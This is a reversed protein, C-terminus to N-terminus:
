IWSPLMMRDAWQDHPLAHGTLVPYLFWLNLVVLAIYSGVLGAGTARRRFSATPPGLVYGICLTMALVVFPLGALEYFFFMTRSKSGPALSTRPSRCGPCRLRRRLGVAIASARWDRRAVAWWVIVVLAVVGPLWIMPTGTGIVQRVCSDAHCGNHGRKPSTSYYLVPRTLFLWSVPRSAWPHPSYLTRAFKFADQHYHIWGHLVAVCTSGADVTGAQRLTDHEYAKHRQPVM